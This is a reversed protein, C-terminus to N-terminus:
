LGITAGVSFTRPQPVTNNDIGGETINEPDIGGYKTILLLNQGQVFFRLSKFAGNTFSGLIDRNISYSLQLNDLRAFDGKEVFRDVANQQLNTFNDRGYWLKPVDTVDGAKQWRDLIASGTNQFAQNMLSEQQTLNFIKNGGSFRWLMDLGFGKYRLSNNFGGFWTPLVNGLIVRDDSALSSQAGM